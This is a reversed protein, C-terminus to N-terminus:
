HTQTQTLQYRAFIAHCALIINLPMLYLPSLDLQGSVVFVPCSYSGASSNISAKNKNEKEKRKCNSSARPHPHPLDYLPDLCKYVFRVRLYKSHFVATLGTSAAIEV